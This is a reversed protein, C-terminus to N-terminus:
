LSSVEDSVQQPLNNDVKGTSAIGYQWVAISETIM